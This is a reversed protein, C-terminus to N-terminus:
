IEQNEHDPCYILLIENAREEGVLAYLRNILNEQADFTEFNALGTVLCQDSEVCGLHVISFDANHAIYFKTCEPYELYTM